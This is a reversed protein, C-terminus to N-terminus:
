WQENLWGRFKVVPLPLFTKIEDTIIFLKNEYTNYSISKNGQKISKLGKSSEYDLANSILLFLASSYGGELETKTIDINLVDKFYNMFLDLAMAKYMLIKDKNENPYKVNLMDELM